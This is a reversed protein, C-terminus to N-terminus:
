QSACGQSSIITRVSKQCKREVNREQPRKERGARFALGGRERERERGDVCVCQGNFMHTYMHQHTDEKLREM